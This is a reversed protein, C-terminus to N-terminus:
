SPPEAVEEDYRGRMLRFGIMAQIIDPLFVIGISLLVLVVDRIPALSILAIILAGITVLWRRWFTTLSVTIGSNLGFGIGMRLLNRVFFFTGAYFWYSESLDGETILSLTCALAVILSLGINILIMVRKFCGMRLRLFAYVGAWGLVGVLPGAVCGLSIAFYSYDTSLMVAVLYLIPFGLSGAILLAGSLKIWSTRTV